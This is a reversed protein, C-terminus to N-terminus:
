KDDKPNIFEDTFHGRQKERAFKQANYQRSAGKPITLSQWDKGKRMKGIFTIQGIHYAYHAMQRNIAETITHGQNRIYVLQDFNEETISDLAEFLCTWGKEWHQLLEEKNKFSDEFELDRKRWSKEGDSNLFDTWRSIMNGSLHNVLISISNSEENYQWFLDDEELQEFSRDALTKYYLFQKKVSSLYNQIM